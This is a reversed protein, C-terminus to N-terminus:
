RQPHPRPKEGILRMDRPERMKYQAPEQRVNVLGAEEMVERLSAPTYAWRHCMLPDCWQPDGYLVWM